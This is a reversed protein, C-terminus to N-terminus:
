ADNSTTHRPSPSPTTPKETNEHQPTTELTKKEVPKSEVMKEPAVKIRPSPIHDSKTSEDEKNFVSKAFNMLKDGWHYKLGVGVLTTICLLAFGIIMTPPTPICLLALGIISVGGNIMSYRDEKEISWLKALKEQLHTLKTESEKLLLKELSIPDQPNLIQQMIPNQKLQSLDTEKSIFKMLNDFDTDKAILEKNIRMDELKKLLIDREGSTLETLPQQNAVKDKLVNIREALLDIENQTHTAKLLSRIWPVYTTAAYGVVSLGLAILGGITALGIGLFVIGTVISAIAVIAGITYVTKKFPSKNQIFTKVTKFLTPISTIINGVIPISSFATAAVASMQVLTNTLDSLLTPIYNIVNFLSRIAMMLNMGAGIDEAKDIHKTFHFKSEHHKFLAKLYPLQENEKFYQSFNKKDLKERLEVKLDQNQLMKKQLKERGLEQIKELKRFQAIELKNLEVTIMDLVTTEMSPFLEKPITSKNQYLENLANISEILKEEQANLKKDNQWSFLGKYKTESLGRYIGFRQVWDSWRHQLKEVREKPTKQHKVPQKSPDTASHQATTIDPANGSIVDSANKKISEFTQSVADYRKNKQNVDITM